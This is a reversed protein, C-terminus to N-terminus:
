LHFGIRGTFTGGDAGIYGTKTSYSQADFSATPGISLWRLPFFDLSVGIRGGFGQQRPANDIDLFSYGFAFDLVSRIWRSGLNFGLDAYIKTMTVGIGDGTKALDTRQFLGDLSIPGIRFGLYAGWALGNM